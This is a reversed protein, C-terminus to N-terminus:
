STCFSTRVAAYLIAQLPILHSAPLVTLFRSSYVLCSFNTAQVRSIATCITFLTLNSINKTPVITQPTPSPLGLLSSPVERPQQTTSILLGGSLPLSFSCELCNKLFIWLCFCSHHKWYSPQSHCTGVFRWLHYTLPWVSLYMFTKLM